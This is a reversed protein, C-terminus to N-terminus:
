HINQEKEYGDGIIVTKGKDTNLNYCINRTIAITEVFKKLM